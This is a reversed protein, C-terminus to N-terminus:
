ESRFRTGQIPRGDASRLRLLFLRYTPKAVKVLLVQRGAALDLKVKDGAEQFSKEQDCAYVEKGGLWIRILTNSGIELTAAQARDSEVVV